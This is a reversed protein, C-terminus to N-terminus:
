PLPVERNLLEVQNKGARGRRLLLIKMKVATPPLNFTWKKSQGSLLNTKLEQVFEIEHTGLINNDIAMFSIQLIGIQVGFNGTPFSHPLLNKLEITINNAELTTRLDFVEKGLPKPYIKFTHKRLTGKKEISVILGSVADKAQTVKRTVAPMHCEQCTQKPNITSNQWQQYTGEHCRGCFAADTFRAKDIGVPHPHVAGTPRIPGFMKGKELHCTTCTVGDEPFINRPIPRQNTLQPEPSHCSLCNSFTGENTSSLFDPSQFAHAHASMSWEHFNDVHCDGCTKAAPFSNEVKTLYDFSKCGVLTFVCLLMLALMRYQNFIVWYKRLSM